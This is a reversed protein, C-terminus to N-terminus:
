DEAGVVDVVARMFKVFEQCRPLQKRTIKKKTLVCAKKIFWADVKVKKPDVPMSLLKM